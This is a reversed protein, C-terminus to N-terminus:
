AVPLVLEPRDWMVAPPAARVIGTRRAGVSTYFGEAPPHSVIRVETLGAAQAEDRLHGILLRGIGAGQADDAVFMLDLEPPDLILSYFGLLRGTTEGVAVFVKHTEVYDHGVRYGAVMPAYPGEYARSHRVLRTLRKVDRM